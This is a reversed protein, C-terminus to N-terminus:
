TVHANISAGAYSSGRRKTGHMARGDDVDLADQMQLRGRVPFEIGDQTATVSDM